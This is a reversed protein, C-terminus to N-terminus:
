GSFPLVFIDTYHPGGPTLNSKIFHLDKVTQTGLDIKERTQIMSKIKVLDAPLIDPKVRGLTIHASFPRGESPYGLRKTQSTVLHFLDALAPQPDIGLWIVKARAPSPFAGMGQIHLEFPKISALAQQLQDKVVPIDSQKFDGLFQITLHMNQTSVWKIQQALTAKLDITLDRIKILIEPSLECAFFSRIAPEHM